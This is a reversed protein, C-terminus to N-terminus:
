GYSIEFFLKDLKITFMERYDVEEIRRQLNELERRKGFHITNSLKEYLISNSNSEYLVSNKGQLLGELKMFFSTM